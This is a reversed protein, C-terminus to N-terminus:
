HHMDFTREKKGREKRREADPKKRFAELNGKLAENQEMDLGQRSHLLEKDKFDQILSDFARNIQIREEGVPYARIIEGNTNIAEGCDAHGCLYDNRLGQETLKDKVYCAFARAFLEENSQWYGKDQKSYMSDLTISNQYFESPKRSFIMLEGDVAKKDWEKQDVALLEGKGALEKLEELSKVPTKNGDSTLHYFQVEDAYEKVVVAVDPSVPYLSRFPYGGTELESITMDMVPLGRKEAVSQRRDMTFCANPEVPNYKLRNMFEQMYPVYENSGLGKFNQEKRLIDDMAHGWEHGLSGAGRMKTINIVEREIEYHALASGQGRAGFAIALRGNLSVDEPQIDLAKALDHFAEYCLNVSERRDNDNLWNGFEGGRISFDKIFDEGSMDQGHRIDEGIRKLHELQPPTYRGKREKTSKQEQAKQAITRASQKAEELGPLNFSLIKHNYVMVYTGEKWNKEEAMEGKPYFFQKGGPVQHELVTRGAYDESFSLYDKDYKIFEFGDLLKQEEDFCFQKAKIDRDYKYFSSVQAAKLLKNNIYGYAKETPNVYYGTKPELYGQGYFFDKFFSKIKAESDVKMVAEKLESLFTIYEDQRKKRGEENDEARSYSPSTPAADRMQKIFWAVRVPTGEKVLQEYDPKKWVNDKKVYKNREALNMQATDELMLGRLRWVDKRAGGIKEGFDELIKSKSEKQEGPVTQEASVEEPQKKFRELGPLSGNIDAQPFREVIENVAKLVTENDIVESYYQLIDLDIVNGVLIEVETEGVTIGISRAANMRQPPIGEWLSVAEDLAAIGEHYEGMSHFESCEAVFFRIQAEDGQEPQQNIEADPKRINKQEELWNMWDFMTMQNGM